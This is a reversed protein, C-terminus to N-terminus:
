EQNTPTGQRLRKEFAEVDSVPIRYPSTKGTGRKFANPFNGALTWRSVTTESCEMRKAVQAITLTKEPQVM